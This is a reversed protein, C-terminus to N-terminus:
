PATPTLVVPNSPSGKHLAGDGVWFFFPLACTGDLFADFSVTAGPDTDFTVGDIETSTQATLQYSPSANPQDAPPPYTHVSDGGTLNEGVVNTLAKGVDPTMIIDWSCVSGTVATDCSTRVHYHGGSAYEIFVGAGDGAKVDIQQDADVTSAIPISCAAPVSYDNSLARNADGNDYTCAVALFALPVGLLFAKRM